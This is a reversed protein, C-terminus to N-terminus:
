KHQCSHVIGSSAVPLVLASGPPNFQDVGAKAVLTGFGLAFADINARLSVFAITREYLGLLFNRDGSAIACDTSPRASLKTWWAVNSSSSLLDNAYGVDTRCPDIGGANLESSLISSSPPPPSEIKPHSCGQQRASTSVHQKFICM